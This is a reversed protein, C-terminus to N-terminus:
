AAVEFLDLQPRDVVPARTLAHEGLGTLVMRCTWIDATSIWCRLACAGLARQCVLATADTEHWYTGWARPRGLKVGGAAVLRLADAQAATPRRRLLSLVERIAPGWAARDWVAKSRDLYFTRVVHNGAYIHVAQHPPAQLSTTMGHEALFARFADVHPDAAM